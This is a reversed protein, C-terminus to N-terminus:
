ENKGLREQIALNIFENVSIHETWCAQQMQDYLSPTVIAQIRRTRTEGKPAADNIVPEAAQQKKPAAAKKPEAAPDSIFALAAPRININDFKKAM